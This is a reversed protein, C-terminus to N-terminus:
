GLYIYDLESKMFEDKGLVRVADFIVCDRRFMHPKLSSYNPHATALIVCKSKSLSGYLDSTSKAGFTEKTYPDHVTIETINEEILKSVIKQTPSNRTDNVGSKYSSGLILISIETKQLNSSKLKELILSVVHSPMNDNIGRATRILSDHSKFTTLLLYPDKPLCPGGVGPGPFHINVRPHTNAVNIVDMVDVKHDECILALENAFAINVDRYSNEALKSIEATAADTQYIKGNTVRSLLEFTAHSSADDEAGILRDNNLFEKLANGPSIREPCFALLFNKGNKRGSVQELQPIIVDKITRPPVTCEVIILMMHNLKKGVSSLAENLASLDAGTRSKNLPTAVCIIVVDADVMADSSQTAFFTGAKIHKAILDDLGKEPITSIGANLKEVQAGNIDFGIVRFGSELFSIATPIGVQGLGLVIITVDKEKIKRM